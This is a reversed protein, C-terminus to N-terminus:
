VKEQINNTNFRGNSILAPSGSSSLLSNYKCSSHLLSIQHIYFISYLSLYNNSKVSVKKINPNSSPWSSQLIQIYIHNQQSLMNFFFIKKQSEEDPDAICCPSINQELPPQNKWIKVLHLQSKCKSRLQSFMSKKKKSFYTQMQTNAKSTTIDSEM